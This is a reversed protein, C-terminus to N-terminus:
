VFYRKLGIIPKELVRWSVSALLVTAASLIFFRWLWNLVPVNVSALAPGLLYPMFGHYVYLGYSITGLYLVPPLELVNRAFGGFGTAARGVLWVGALSGAFDLAVVQAPTETGLNRLVLLVALAPVGICFATHVLWRRSAQYALLAGLGLSDLCSFPLISIMPDPSALRVLPALPIMAGIVWILWQRPVCLILWPWVLYFQEEVGLSWFHSIPGQWDGRLYFYVNSLYAVHWLLTKRVADINLLAAAFLAFYFLPFIRLFRRAYFSKLSAALPRERSALLISTILFGSLVFFLRVGMSGLPAFRDSKPVFHFVMVFLVAIARIADLQPMYPIATM